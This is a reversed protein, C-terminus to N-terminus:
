LGEQVGYSYDDGDVSAFGYTTDTPTIADSPWNNEYETKLTTYMNAADSAIGQENVGKACEQAAAEILVNIEDEDANIYDTDETSNAQWTGGSTQWPYKSYYIFNYIFGLKIQVQDFRYSSSNIKGLAKNMFISCYTTNTLVPTGVTTSGNFDFRLLNWGVYFSTGENTQSTTMTYYNSNSSGIQVTYSTINAPDTIYAFTFLSGNQYYATIDSPGLNTNQIGATAFSGSGIDFKVSGNGQVYNYTDTVINQAGGVAVWPGGNSGLYSDLPDIVITNNPIINGAAIRLKRIFSNDSFSMMNAEVSKYQDFQSPSVLDWDQLNSRNYAQAELDVAKQGKVDAPCAYDYISPFINPSMPASRKASRFDIAAWARRIGYNITGRVDPLM